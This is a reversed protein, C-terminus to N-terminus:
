ARGSVILEMDWEEKQEIASEDRAIVQGGGFMDNQGTDDNRQHQEALLLARPLHHMLTARSHKLTDLAGCRIMAEFSRRNFKGLELRICLDNLSKFEGKANRENVLHEVAAEGM